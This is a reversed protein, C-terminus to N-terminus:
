GPVRRDRSMRRSIGVHRIRHRVPGHRAAAHHRTRHERGAPRARGCRDARRGQAGRATGADNLRHATVPDFSTFEFDKWKGSRKRAKVARRYTALETKAVEYDIDDADPMNVPETGLDYSYIGTEATIGATPGPAAATAAAGDKAVPAAAPQPAAAGPMLAHPAPAVGVAPNPAPPNLDGYIQVALPKSPPAPNEEVGEIPVFPKRPLPAGPLPAGSEPDIPGSVAFLASLPVAGGRTSFIFRPVTKGDPEPKGFRLERV